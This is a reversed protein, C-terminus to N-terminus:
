DFWADRIVFIFFVVVGVLISIPYTVILWFIMVSVIVLGIVILTSYIWPLIKM